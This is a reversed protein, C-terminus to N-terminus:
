PVRQGLVNGPPSFRCVLYDSGARTAMACGVRHTTPWIMQTYHGIEHWDGDNAVEPFVGPHFDRKESIFHGMMEELSYAGATGRWLNEGEGVRLQPPSHEFRGNAALTDAWAQAHQALQADWVLSRQGIRAREGNHLDLLRESFGSSNDAIRHDPWFEDVRKASASGAATVALVAFSIIHVLRKM